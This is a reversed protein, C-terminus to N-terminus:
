GGIKWGLARCRNIIDSQAHAKFNRVHQRRLYWFLYKEFEVEHTLVQEFCAGIEAIRTSHFVHHFEADGFLIGPKRHLLGKFSVSSNMSVTYACGRLLGDLDAQTVSVRAGDCLAEIAAMEAPSYTENPHLKIKIDRRKEHAIVQEIMQIPAMSQWSRRRSLVGQLAVLVFGANPVCPGEVVGQKECMRDFLDRAAGIQISNPNFKARYATKQAIEATSDLAWYPGFAAPRAELAHPHHPPHRHFICYSDSRYSARLNQATSELFSVRFGVGQFARSVQGYFHQPKRTAIDLDQGLVYINLRDIM